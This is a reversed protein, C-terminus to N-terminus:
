LASASTAAASYPKSAKLGSLTAKRIELHRRKAKLNYYMMLLQTMKMLRM